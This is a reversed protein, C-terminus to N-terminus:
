AAHEKLYALAKELWISNEVESLCSNCRPCLLKRVKGTTHNHDVCFSTSIDRSCLPCQGGQESLKKNQEDLTLGYRRFRGTRREYEKLYAQRRERVEPRAMYAKAYKARRQKWAEEGIKERFRRTWERRKEPDYRQRRRANRKEPDAYPMM